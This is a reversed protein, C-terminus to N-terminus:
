GVGLLKDRFTEITVKLNREISIIRSTLTLALAALMLMLALIVLYELSVQATDDM